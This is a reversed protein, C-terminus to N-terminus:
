PTEGRSFRYGDSGATADWKEGGLYLCRTEEWGGTAGVCSVMSLDHSM